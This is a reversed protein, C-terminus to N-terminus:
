LQFIKVWVKELWNNLDESLKFFYVALGFFLTILTSRVLIDILYNPLQPLFQLLFVTSLGIIVLILTKWTFPQFNLNKWLFLYKFLNFAFKSILSAIAAGLIGYLPIFILNTIVLLLMFFFSLYASTTYYKSNFFIQSSIGSLMDFLNATGILIVVWYGARFEDGILLFINEINGWLGLLILMGVIGLNISSKKYISNVEALDNRKFADSIIISSIKAMSRSPILVLTGFFFTITYIGTQALGTMQNLMLIDVNIVLIAAFSSFIGYLGVHGIEKLLPKNLFKFDPILTFDGKIFLAILMFVAPLSFAILYLYVNTTFGFWGLYYGIFVFLILIRQILEKYMIGIVAQYLARFYTDVITYLTLFFTLPVIVYFYHSFMSSKEVGKELIFHQLLIYVLSVLLFGTFGVLLSLGFFGHHKTKEDRFFPFMKVSVFSFGLVAITSLVSGYSILVRLLGIEETQFIRPMLLGTTLFGLIVGVITYIFGTISQRQIIGMYHLYSALKYFLNSHVESISFISKLIIMFSRM